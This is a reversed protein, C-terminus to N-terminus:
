ICTQGGPKPQAVHGGTPLNAVGNRKKTYNSLCHLCVVESAYTLITAVIHQQVQRHRLFLRGCPMWAHFSFSIFIFHLHFSCYDLWAISTTLATKDLAPNSSTTTMFEANSLDHSPHRSDQSIHNKVNSVSLKRLLFLCILMCALYMTDPIQWLRDAQWNKFCSKTVTQAARTYVNKQCRPHVPPRVRGSIRRCIDPDFTHHVSPAMNPHCIETFRNKHYKSATTVGFLRVGYLAFNQWRQNTPQGTVLRHVTSPCM